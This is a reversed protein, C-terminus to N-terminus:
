IAGLNNFHNVAMNFGLVSPIHIAAKIRHVNYHTLMEKRSAKSPELSKCSNIIYVQAGYALCHGMECITGFHEEDYDGAYLIMMDAKATDELMVQWLAATDEIIEDDAQIDIWRSIINFGLNDRLNKFADARTLKGACYIAPNNMSLVM